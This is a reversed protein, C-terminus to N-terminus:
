AVSVQPTLARADWSSSRNPMGQSKMWRGLPRQSFRLREPTAVARGRVDTVKGLRRAGHRHRPVFWFPRNPGQSQPIGRGEGRVNVQRGGLACYM